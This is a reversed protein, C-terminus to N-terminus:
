SGGKQTIGHAREVARAFELAHRPAISACGWTERMMEAIQADTLPAPAPQPTAELMSRLDEAFLLLQPGDFGDIDKRVIGSALICAGLAEALLKLQHQLGQVTPAGAAAKPAAQEMRLAHTRDAFDRMSHRNWVAGLGVTTADPEHLEAYVAGPQAQQEAPPTARELAEIAPALLGEAIRKASATDRVAGNVMNQYLHRLKALETPDTM